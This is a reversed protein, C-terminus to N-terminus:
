SETEEPVKIAGSSPVYSKAKEIDADGKNVRAAEKHVKILALEGEIDQDAPFFKRYRRAYEDAKDYNGSKEALVLANKLTTQYNETSAADLAKEANDFAGDYDGMKELCGAMQNYIIETENGAASGLANEFATLVGEYDEKQYLIQGQYLYAGDYKKALAKNIFSEAQDYDSKLLYARAKLVNAEPTDEKSSTVKVLIDQAKDASGARSYVDFLMFLVDTNDPEEKLAASLDAEAKDFSSLSEYISAREILLPVSTKKKEMLANLIKLADDPKGIRFLVRSRLLEINEDMDPLKKIESAKDLLELAKDPDDMNLYVLAEGYYAEKNYSMSVSNESDQVAKEFAKVAEENKGEKSLCAGLGIYQDARKGDAKIAKRYMAEADEYKGKAALDEAKKFYDTGKNCATLLLFSLIFFLAYVLAIKTSM